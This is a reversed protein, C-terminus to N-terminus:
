GVIVRHNAVHPRQLTKCKAQLKKLSGKRHETKRQLNIVSQTKLKLL